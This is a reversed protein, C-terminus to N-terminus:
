FCSLSGLPLPLVFPPIIRRLNVVVPFACAAASCRASQGLDYPVGVQSMDLTTLTPLGHPKGLLGGVPVEMGGASIAAINCTPTSAVAQAVARAGEM